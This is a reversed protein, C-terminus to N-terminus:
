QLKICVHSMQFTRSGASTNGDLSMRRSWSSTILIAATLPKARLTNGFGKHAMVYIMRLLKDAM